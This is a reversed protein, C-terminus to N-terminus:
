SSGKNKKQPKCYKTEVKDRIDKATRCSVRNGFVTSIVKGDPATIYKGATRGNLVPYYEGKIDQFMDFRMIREGEYKRGTKCYGLDGNKKRFATYPGRPNRFGVFTETFKKIYIDAHNRKIRNRVIDYVTNDKLLYSKTPRVILLQSTFEDPSHTLMAKKGLKEIQDYDTHVVSNKSAVDHLFLVDEDYIRMAEEYRGMSWVQEIM